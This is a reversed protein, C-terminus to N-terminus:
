RRALKAGRAGLPPVDTRRAAVGHPPTRAKRADDATLELDGEHLRSERMLKRRRERRDRKIVFIMVVAMVVCIFVTLVMGVSWFLQPEQGSYAFMIYGSLMLTNVLLTWLVFGSRERYERGFSKFAM